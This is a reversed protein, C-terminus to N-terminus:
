LTTAAWARRLELPPVRGGCGLSRARSHREILERQVNRPEGSPGAAADLRRGARAGLLQHQRRALPRARRDARRPRKDDIIPAVLEVRNYLNRPMLDASGIYM